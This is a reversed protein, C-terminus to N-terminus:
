RTKARIYAADTMREEILDGARDFTERRREHDPIAFAKALFDRDFDEPDGGLLAFTHLAM